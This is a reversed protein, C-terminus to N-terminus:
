VNDLGARMTLKNLDYYGYQTYLSIKKDTLFEDPEVNFGRDLCLNNTVEVIPNRISLSHRMFLQLLLAFRKAYFRYNFRAKSCQVDPTYPHFLHIREAFAFM